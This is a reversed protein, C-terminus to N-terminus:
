QKGGGGVMPVKFSLIDSLKFQRGRKLSKRNVQRRQMHQKDQTYYVM